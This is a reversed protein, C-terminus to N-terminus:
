DSWTKKPVAWDCKDEIGLNDVHVVFLESGAGKVGTHAGQMCLSFNIQAERWEYGIHAEQM